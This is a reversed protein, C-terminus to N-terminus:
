RTREIEQTRQQVRPENKTRPWAQHRLLQMALKERDTLVKALNSAFYRVDGALIVEGQADLQAAVGMWGDVISRRTAVLRPRAPDRITGTGNLEIAVDRLRERLARSRTPPTRYVRDKTFVKTRGRVARPTANAAIGQDRMLQAFQERWDRLMAKDIHLRRGDQGEAKVVLHVHPHEQDTHLAMAYRYQLAFKERAFAKAAKLVKDPPTPRPMSLVINHVLKLERPRSGRDKAQRYQGPSLDLHWSKLLERQGDKGIRDGTDTEIELQGKRSIYSLHASVAGLRTAGGSVKVMVEPVRRVTRSIQELQAATFRVSGPPGARAASFIDVLAARNELPVRLVTGAV